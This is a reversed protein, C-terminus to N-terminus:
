AEPWDELHSAAARQKVFSAIEYLDVGEHVLPLNNVGVVVGEFSSKVVEDVGSGFPDKIICLQEGESVQQGLKIKSHCIGSTPSRVWVNDEMLFSQTEKVESSSSLMNTAMMVNKIGKLGFKIASEDFRMAEGAEYVLYPIDRKLAEKRLSGSPADVHTIVPAGFLKALKLEQADNSIFIQPLNSFNQWGTQLDICYDAISFIDELFLHAIRAAHHGTSSGPFSRALPVGGPLTRSKTVFGHVNMIPVCILTGKLKKLASSQLLRNIIETGNLENGHLAAMILMVPGEQKGHFVKLPMFMPACSFMEPLPLAMSAMEGPQIIENCIKFKKAKM